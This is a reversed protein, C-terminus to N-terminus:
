GNREDHPPSGATVVRLSSKVRKKYPRRKRPVAEGNQFCIGLQRLRARVRCVYAKTTELQQSGVDPNGTALIAEMPPLMGSDERQVFDVFEEILHRDVRQKEERQCRKRLHASHAHCFEDGVLDRDTEEWHTTLSLNGPRCLPNKM